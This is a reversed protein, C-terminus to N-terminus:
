EKNQENKVKLLNKYRESQKRTNQHTMISDLIPRMLEEHEIYYKYSNYFTSKDTQYKKFIKEQIVLNEKELDLLTDKALYEKTFADAMFQDLLIAEMKAPPLIDNPAKNNCSSLAVILCFLLILQKM